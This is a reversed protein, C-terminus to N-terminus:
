APGTCIPIESRQRDLEVPQRRGDAVAPQGGHEPRQRVPDALGERRRGEDVRDPARVRGIPGSLQELRQDPSHALLDLGTPRGPGFRDDQAPLRGAVPEVQRRGVHIGGPQPEGAGAQARGRGGAPGLLDQAVRTRDQGPPPSLRVRLHGVGAPEALGAVQQGGGAQVDGDQAHLGQEVQAPRLLRDAGHICQQHLVRQM